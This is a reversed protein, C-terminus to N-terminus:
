LTLARTCRFAFTHNKNDAYSLAGGGRVFFHVWAEHGVPAGSSATSSWYIVNPLSSIQAAVAVNPHDVLNRQVSDMSAGCGAVAQDNLECMAPLYWDSYASATSASCVGAAYFASNVGPDFAVIQQTNCAGDNAGNCPAASNENIGPIANYAVDAPNGSVGNSSWIVPVSEDRAVVKGGISGTNPTTDDIAFVYGGQYASGYTLVQVTPNLTNTNSGGISLTVPVPSADGALASATNGPTITIQCSALPALMTCTSIATTGAPLAPSGADLAYAVSLAPAGGTNTITFVRPTGTLAPLPAAAAENTSLALAMTSVSLTTAPAPPPTSSGGGSPSGGCAAFLVVSSLAMWRASSFRRLM